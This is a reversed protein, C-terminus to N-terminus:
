FKILFIETNIFSFSHKTSFRKSVVGCGVRTLCVPRM